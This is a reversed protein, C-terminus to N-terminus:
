KRIVVQIVVSDGDFDSCKTRQGREVGGSFKM